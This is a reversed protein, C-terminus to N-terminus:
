RWDLKIFFEIFNWHKKWRVKPHIQDWLIVHINKHKNRNNIIVQRINWNHEFTIYEWKYSVNIEEKKWTNFNWLDIKWFDLVLKSNKEWRQLWNKLDWKLQYNKLKKYYDPSFDSNNYINWWRIKITINEPLEEKLERYDIRGTWDYYYNKWRNWNQIESKLDWLEKYLESLQDIDDQIYKNPEANKLLYKIYEQLKEGDEFNNATRLINNRENLWQWFSKRLYKDLYIQYTNSIEQNGEISNLQWIQESYNAM